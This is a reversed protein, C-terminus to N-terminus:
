RGMVKHLKVAAEHFEDLTSEEKHYGEGMVFIEKWYKAKGRVQKTCYQIGNWSVSTVNSKAM